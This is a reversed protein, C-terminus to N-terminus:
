SNDKPLPIEQPPIWVVKGNRWEAIPLGLQRHRLMAQRVGQRLAQDIAAGEAFLKDIRTTQDKM